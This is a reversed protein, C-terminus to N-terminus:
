VQLRGILADIFAGGKELQDLAIWEDPQHAQEISGPGCVVSSWGAGQFLGAETAFAATQVGNDGTIARALREAEGDLEIRLAPTASRRTVTVGGQPFRAKIARDTAEAAALFRAVYVEPDDGPPCRLDWVFSCRRALINVATGGDVLGITMTAHPPDFDAATPHQAAERCMQEVLSMLPVAQMIASVGDRVSSSHAEKGEVEVLFTAIGKHGSVVRMSTPEGVIVAAPTPIAPAMEKILGPAGLCGVEEDYSFALFLPRKLSAARAAEVRSLALAAFSKMDAVGRGYLRGDKETLVWPDTSWAQGDVPVVDTHGSLVVGGPVEPGIRAFLNAKRGDPSPVIRADVGREALFRAVWDILELNSERSTTDFAILRELIARASMSM